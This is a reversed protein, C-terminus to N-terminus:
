PAYSDRQELILIKPMGIVGARTMGDMLKPHALFAKARDLSEWDMSVLVDNSSGHALYVRCAVEGAARRAERASDFVAKWADFDGVRHRIDITVM